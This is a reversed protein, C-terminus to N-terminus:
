SVGDAVHKTNIGGRVSNNVNCVYSGRCHDHEIRRHVGNHISQHVFSESLLYFSHDAAVVALFSVHVGQCPFGPPRCPGASGDM